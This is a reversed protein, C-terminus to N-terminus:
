RRRRVVIRRPPSRRGLIERRVRRIRRAVRYYRRRRLRDIVAVLLILMILLILPIAFLMLNIKVYEVEVKVHLVKVLLDQREGYRIVADIVRNDEIESQTMIVKINIARKEGPAIKTVPIPLEAPKGDLKVVVYGSVYATVPGINTIFLKLNVGDYTAKTLEIQSRDIVAGVEIKKRQELVNVMFDKYRGFRATLLAELGSYNYTSLDIAYSRTLQEGPWVTFIEEDRITSVAEGDSLIQTISFVYALGDGLNTLTIYLKKATPDYLVKTFTINPTPIPLPYTTLTQMVGAGAQAYSEAYKVLVGITRNSGERIKSAADMLEGGVVFVLRIGKKQLMQVFGAPLERSGILLIPYEGEMVTQEIYRGSTLIVREARGWEELLRLSNAYPSGENIVEVVKDLVQAVALVDRRFDRRVNGILYILNFNGLNNIVSDDDFLVLGEKKYALPVAVLANEPETDSVVFVVKPAIEKILFEQIERPDKFKMENVSVGYLNRLYQAYGPFVARNTEIVTVDERQIAKALNDAQLPSVLFKMEYGKYHAYEMGLFVAKWDLSNVVLVESFATALLLFM